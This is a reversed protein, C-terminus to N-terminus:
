HGQLVMHFLIFPALEATALLAYFARMKWSKFRRWLLVMVGAVMLRELIAIIDGHYQSNWYSFPSRFVWDSLPWFHM